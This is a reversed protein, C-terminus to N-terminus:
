SAAELRKLAAPDEKALSVLEPGAQAEEEAAPFDVSAM